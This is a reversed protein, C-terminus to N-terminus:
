VANQRSECETEDHKGLIYCLSHVLCFPKFSLLLFFFRQLKRKEEVVKGRSERSGGKRGIKTEEKREWRADKERDVEKVRKM